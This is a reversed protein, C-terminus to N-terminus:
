GWLTSKTDIFSGHTRSMKNSCNCQVVACFFTIWWCSHLVFFSLNKLYKSCCRNVKRFVHRWRLLTIERVLFWIIHLVTLYFTTSDSVYFYSAKQIDFNTWYNQDKSNRTSDRWLVGGSAFMTILCSKVSLCRRGFWVRNSVGIVTPITTDHSWNASFQGISNPLLCHHWVLFQRWMVCSYGCNKFNQEWVQFLIVYDGHSIETSWSSRHSLKNTCELLSLVTWHKTNQGFHFAVYSSVAFVVFNYQCMWAQLLFGLNSALIPSYITIHCMFLCGFAQLNERSPM